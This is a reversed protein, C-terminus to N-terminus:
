LRNLDHFRIYDVSADYAKLMAIVSRNKSSKPGTNDTIANQDDLGIRAGRQQPPDIATQLHRGQQIRTAVMFPGSDPAM